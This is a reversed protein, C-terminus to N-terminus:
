AFMEKLLSFFGVELGMVGCKVISDSSFSSFSKVKSPRDNQLAGYCYAKAGFPVIVMLTLM